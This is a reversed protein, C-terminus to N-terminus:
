VVVAYKKFFRLSREFNYNGPNAKLCKDCILINLNGQSFRIGAGVNTCNDCKNSPQAVKTNSKKVVQTEVTTYVMAVLPYQHPVGVQTRADGKIWSALGSSMHKEPTHILNPGVRLSYGRATKTIGCCSELKDAADVAEEFNKLSLNKGESNKANKPLYMTQVPGSWGESAKPYEDVTYTQM